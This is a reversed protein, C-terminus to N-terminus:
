KIHKQKNQKKNSNLDILVIFIYYVCFCKNWFLIPFQRVCVTYFFSVSNIIIISKNWKWHVLLVLKCCPGLTKQQHRMALLNHTRIGSGFWKQTSNAHEGLPSTSDFWLLYSKACNIHWDQVLYSLAERVLCRDITIKVFIPITTLIVM